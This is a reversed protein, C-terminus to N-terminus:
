ELYELHSDLDRERLVVSRLRITAARSDLSSARFRPPIKGSLSLFLCFLEVALRLFRQGTAIFGLVLLDMPKPLFSLVV